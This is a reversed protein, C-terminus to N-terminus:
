PLGHFYHLLFPILEAWKLKNKYQWFIPKLRIGGPLKFLNSILTLAKHTIAKDFFVGFLVWHFLTRDSKIYQCTTYNLPRSPNGLLWTM